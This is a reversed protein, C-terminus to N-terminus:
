SECFKFDATILNLPIDQFILIGDMDYCENTRTDITFFFGHNVDTYVRYGYNVKIVQEIGSNIWDSLNM